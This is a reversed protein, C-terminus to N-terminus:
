QNQDTDVTMAVWNEGSAVVPGDLYTVNPKYSRVLTKPRAPRTIESKVASKNSSGSPLLSHGDLSSFKHRKAIIIIDPGKNKVAQEEPVLLNDIPRVHLQMEDTVKRQEQPQLQTVITQLSSSPAPSAGVIDRGPFVAADKETALGKDVQESENSLDTRAKIDLQMENSSLMINPQSENIVTSQMDSSSVVVAGMTQCGPSSTSGVTGGKKAKGETLGIYAVKAASMEAQKKTRAEQGQFSDDGIEVTSVFVPMHSPGSKTTDYIPFRFGRKQALEQLLSKYLGEDEQVDDPPLSEFAVKAAAHEADKLTSFFDPAEYTNGGITVRSKFRRSHPPGNIECSYIPLTLNRKQAYNQLRNKYLNVKSGTEDEHNSSTQSARSNEGNEQKSPPLIRSILPSINLNADSTLFGPSPESPATNPPSPRQLITKPATFHDYALKAAQNQAEKLSRCEFAPTQFPVGNVTVTATFRPNHDPGERM